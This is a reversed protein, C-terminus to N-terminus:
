QPLNLTESQVERLELPGLPRFGPEVSRRLRVCRTVEEAPLEVLFLRARNVAEPEGVLRALRLIQLYRVVPVCRLESSMAATPQSPSLAGGEHAVYLGQERSAFLRSMQWLVNTAGFMAELRESNTLGPAQTLADLAAVTAEADNGDSESTELELVAARTSHRILCELCRSGHTECRAAGEEAVRSPLGEIACSSERASQADPSAGGCASVVVGFVFFPVCFDCFTCRLPAFATM